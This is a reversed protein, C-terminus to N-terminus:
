PQDGSEDADEPEEDGQDPTVIWLPVKLLSISGCRLFVTEGDVDEFALRDSASPSHELMFFINQFDGMDDEDPRHHSEPEVSFAAPTQNGTMFILATNNFDGNSDDEENASKEAIVQGIPAEYLFQCWALDSLNLAICHSETDFVVFSMADESGSEDQISSFLRDHEQSSICFTMTEQHGNLQAKFFWTRPDLEIGTKRVMSWEDSGPTLKSADMEERVKRIASVSGPFVTNLPSGLAECIKTAMDLRATARGSEIRQIQQQSTGALTALHRQSWGLKTRIAKVKNSM